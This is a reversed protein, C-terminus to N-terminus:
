FLLQWLLFLVILVVIAPVIYRTLGSGAQQVERGAASATNMASDAASGVADTASDAASGVAGVASEAASSVSDTAAGVADMASDLMGGGGGLSAFSEVGLADSLGPIGADDLFKGQGGLLGMLSSANLGGKTVQKGLMGIAMPALMKLLSSSSGKKIGAVSSLLDFMGGTDNGMLGSLISGGANMLADNSGQGGGLLGAFDSLDLGSNSQNTVMNLIDGAGTETSGKKMLMGMLAPAAAQVASQTASEEEGLLGSLQSVAGPTISDGLMQLLNDM